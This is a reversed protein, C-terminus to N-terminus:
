AAMIDVRLFFDRFFNPFKKPLAGPNRVEKTM